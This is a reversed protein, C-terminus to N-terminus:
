RLPRGFQYEGGTHTWTNRAYRYVLPLAQPLDVNAIDADSINELEKIIARLINGHAVLLVQQGSKVKSLIQKRVYPMTREFVDKLSEGKPPRGIYSRRWHLVQEYGFKKNAQEKNMGQLEGYYRENLCETDYVPLDGNVYNSRRIWEPHKSHTPMHQVIGTRDQYGLIIQLTEHARELHSTFANDFEYMRCHKACVGAERIGTNSLPVDVWGTFKNDLNWRSEGHRVLVLLGM